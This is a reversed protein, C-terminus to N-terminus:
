KTDMSISQYQRVFDLLDEVNSHFNSRDHWLRDHHPHHHVNDIWLKGYYMVQVRRNLFDFDLWIHM